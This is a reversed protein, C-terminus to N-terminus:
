LAAAKHGHSKRWIRSGDMPAFPLLNMAGLVLNLTFLIRDGYFSFDAVPLLVAALALNALPGAASITADHLESSERINFPGIFKCGVAYVKVGYYRAAMVHALEHFAMSTICLATVTVNFHCGIFLVPPLFLASPWIQLKM